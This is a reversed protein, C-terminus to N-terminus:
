KRTSTDERRTKSEGHQAGVRITNTLDSPVLRIPCTQSTTIGAGFLEELGYRDEKKIKQPPPLFLREPIERKLGPTKGAIYAQFAMSALYFEKSDMRAANRKMYSAFRQELSAQTDAKTVMPSLFKQHSHKWLRDAYTNGLQQWFTATTPKAFWKQHAKKFLDKLQQEIV